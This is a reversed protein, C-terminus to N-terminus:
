EQPSCYFFLQTSTHEDSTGPFRIKMTWNSDCGDFSNEECFDQIKLKIYTPVWIAISIRGIVNNHICVNHPRWRHGGDIMAAMAPNLIM